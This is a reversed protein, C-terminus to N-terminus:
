LYSSIYLNLDWDSEVDSDKKLIYNALATDEADSDTPDEVSLFEKSIYDIFAETIESSNDVDNFLGEKEVKSTDIDEAYKLLLLIIAKIADPNKIEEDTEDFVFEATLDPVGPIKFPVIKLSNLTEGMSTLEAYCDFGGDERAQFGFNSIFGLFADANGDTQSRLKYIAQYISAQDINDNFLSKGNRSLINEISLNQPTIKGENNIYPDWGWEVVIPYGPRLYLLELVELQCLITVPFCILDYRYFSM